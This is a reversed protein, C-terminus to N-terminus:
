KRLASQPDDDAQRTARKGCIDANDILADADDGLHPHTCTIADAPSTEEVTTVHGDPCIYRSTSM